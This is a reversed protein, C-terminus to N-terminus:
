RSPNKMVTCWGSKLSVSQCKSALICMTNTSEGTPPCNMPRLVFSEMGWLENTSCTKVTSGLSLLKIFNQSAYQHLTSTLQNSCKLCRHLTGVWSPRCWKAFWFPLGSWSKLFWSSIWNRVLNVTTVNRLKWANLITRWTKRTLGLPVMSGNCWRTTACVGTHVLLMLLQLNPHSWNIPRGRCPWRIWEKVAPLHDFSGVGWRRLTRRDSWSYAQLNIRKMKTVGWHIRSTRKWSKRWKKKSVLSFTKTLSKQGAQNDLTYFVM